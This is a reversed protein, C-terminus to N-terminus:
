GHIIDIGREQQRRIALGRSSIPAGAPIIARPQPRRDAVATEPPIALRPQPPWKEDRSKFKVTTGEGELKPPTPEAGGGWLRAAMNGVMIPGASTAAPQLLSRWCLMAEVFVEEFQESECCLANYEGVALDLMEGDSEAVVVAEHALILAAGARTNSCPHGRAAEALWLDCGILGRATLLQAALSRALTLACHVVNALQAPDAALLLARVTGPDGRLAAVVLTIALRRTIPQPDTIM